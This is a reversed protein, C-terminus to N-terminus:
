LTYLLHWSSQTFNHGWQQLRRGRLEAHMPPWTDGPPRSPWVALWSGKIPCREAWHSRHVAAAAAASQADLYLSVRDEEKKKHGGVSEHTKWGPTGMKWSARFTVLRECNFVYCCFFRKLEQTNSIILRQQRKRWPQDHQLFLVVSKESNREMLTFFFFFCSLTLCATLM